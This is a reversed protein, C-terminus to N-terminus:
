TDLYKEILSLFDKFVIPKEVIEDYSNPPLEDSIKEKTYASVMFLPIKQFEETSKLIKTVEVGSTGAIQVDMLILDPKERIIAPIVDNGNNVIVVDFNKIALFNQVMKASIQDDEVLLIKKKHPM